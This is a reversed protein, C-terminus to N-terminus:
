LEELVPHCDESLSLSRTLLEARYLSRGTVGGSGLAQDLLIVQVGEVLLVGVLCVVGPLIVLVALLVVVGQLSLGKGQLPVLHHGRGDRM